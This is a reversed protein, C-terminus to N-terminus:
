FYVKTLCLYPVKILWVIKWFFLLFQLIEFYGVDLKNDHHACYIGIARTLLMVFYYISYVAFMVSFIKNASKKLKLLNQYHKFTRRYNNKNFNNYLFDCYITLVLYSLLLRGESLVKILNFFHIWLLKALMIFFTLISGKRTQHSILVKFSTFVMHSVSETILIILIFIEECCTRYHFNEIDFQFQYMENLMKVTKSEHIKNFIIVSILLVSLVTLFAFSSVNIIFVNSFSGFHTHCYMYSFYCLSLVCVFIFKVTSWKPCTRFRNTKRDFKLTCIGFYNSLITLRTLSSIPSKRGVM